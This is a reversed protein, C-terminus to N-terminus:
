DLCQRQRAPSVEGILHVPVPEATANSAGFSVTIFDRVADTTPSSTMQRSAYYRGDALTEPSALLPSVFWEPACSINRTWDLGWKYAISLAPLQAQLQMTHGM